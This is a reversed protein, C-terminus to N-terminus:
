SQNEAGRTESALKPPKAESVTDVFVPRFGAREVFGAIERRKYLKQTDPADVMPLGRRSAIPGAIDTAGFSLAIQAMELGVAAWDVVIRGGIPGLLRLAAIRRLLATGGNREDIVAVEGSRPPPSPVYVRAEDGCELRRAADAAAGLALIEAAEVRGRWTAASPAVGRGRADLLEALGEREILRRVLAGSV